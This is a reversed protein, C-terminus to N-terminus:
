DVRRVQVRLSDAVAVRNRGAAKAKYLAEDASKVLDEGSWEPSVVCAAVGASITVVPGASSNPHSLSLAFVRERLRHAASVAEAPASQAILVVFEEGGYRALTAGLQICEAALARAVARLAEDGAPHGLSDNYAKFHDVDIMIAALPKGTIWLESLRENFARRNLVGTLGDRRSQDLLRREQNVRKTIDRGVAVVYPAGQEEVRRALIEFIANQGTDSLVSWEFRASGERAAQHLFSQWQEATEFASPLFVPVDPSSPQVGLWVRASRNCETVRGSFPEIILLADDTQSALRYFLSLRRQQDRVERQLRAREIAGRVARILRDDDIRRKMLYDAAGRKLAEVSIAADEEGTLMVVPPPDTLKVIASLVDIGQMEGLDQDLLVCAVSSDIAELGSMGDGAEIVAYAEGAQRLMHRYRIRDPLNDDILLIKDPM